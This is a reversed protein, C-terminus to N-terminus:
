EVDERRPVLPYAPGELVLGVSGPPPERLSVGAKSSTLLSTAAIAPKV